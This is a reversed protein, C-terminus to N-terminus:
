MKVGEKIRDSSTNDETEKLNPKNWISSISSTNSSILNLLNAFPIQEIFQRDLHLPLKLVRSFLTISGYKNRNSIWLFLPNICSLFFYFKNSNFVKGSLLVYFDEEKNSLYLNLPYQKSDSM